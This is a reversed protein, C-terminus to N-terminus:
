AAVGRSISISISISVRFRRANAQSRITRRRGGGKWEGGMGQGPRGDKDESHWAQRRARYRLTALAQHGHAELHRKSSIAAVISVRTQIYEKPIHAAADCVLHQPGQSSPRQITAFAVGLAVSSNVDRGNMAALMNNLHSQTHTDARTQVRASTYPRPQTSRASLQFRATRPCSKTFSPKSQELRLRSPCVGASQACTM